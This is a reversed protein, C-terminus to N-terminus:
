KLLEIHYRTYNRNKLESIMDIGLSEQQIIDKRNQDPKSISRELLVWFFCGPSTGGM